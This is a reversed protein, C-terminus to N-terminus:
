TMRAPARFQGPTVGALRKFHRSLQSQDSFGSRSAVTALPIEEDDLLIRRAREVRRAIIFQHPPLGTAARFQRAFHYPSLSAVAALEGLTLGADLNDEIYDVVRRLRTQPLKGDRLRAPLRQASLHRILGVALLNALSEAALNGWATGAMLGADIAQMAARLQPLDLRDLPPISLRAPNLDFSEAAVREILRPDLSVSLSDNSGEWRWYAPSGAPVLLISGAPPPFRRHVGEFRVEGDESSRNVLVLTHHTSPPVEIESSPVDLYHAALMGVRDSWDSSAYPRFGVLAARERPKLLGATAAIRRNM